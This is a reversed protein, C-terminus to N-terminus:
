LICVSGFTSIPRVHLLFAPCCVSWVSCLTVVLSLSSILPVVLYLIALRCLLPPSFWRSCSLLPCFVISLVSPSSCGATSPCLRPSLRFTIVRYAKPTALRGTRLMLIFALSHLNGFRGRCGRQCDVHVSMQSLSSGLSKEIPDNIEDKDKGFRSLYRM